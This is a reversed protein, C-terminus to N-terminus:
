CCRPSASGELGGARVFEMLMGMLRSRLQVAPRRDGSQARRPAGRARGHRGVACEGRVRVSKATVAPCRAGGPVLRARHRALAVPWGVVVLLVGLVLVARSRLWAAPRRGGGPVRPERHLANCERALWASWCCAWALCRGVEGGLLLLADAAGLYTHFDRFHAVGMALWASRRCTRWSSACAECCLQQAGTAWPAGAWPWSCSGGGDHVHIPVGPWLAVIPLAGGDGM